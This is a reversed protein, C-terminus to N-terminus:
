SGPLKGFGSIKFRLMADTSRPDIDYLHPRKEFYSRWTKGSVSSIQTQHKVKMANALDSVLMGKGERSHTSIVGRIKNDFASVTQPASKSSPTNSREQGVDVVKTATSSPGVVIFKSCGAKFFQPVKAEGIGCVVIGRERLRQALHVFDGDSSAIVFGGWDGSLALEMADICLLVDAANKGCGAHIMRFGPTTLSANCYVRALDVRGLKRAEAMIKAAHVASLNDGDVLVAIRQTM